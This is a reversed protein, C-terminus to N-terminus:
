LGDVMVGGGRSPYIIRWDMGSNDFKRPNVASGIAIDCDYGNTDNIILLRGGSIEWSTVRSNARLRNAWAGRLWAGGFSLERKEEVKM